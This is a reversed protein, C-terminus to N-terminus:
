LMRLKNRFNDITTFQFANIGVSQAGEVNEIHDDVFLTEEPKLNYTNLLYQFIKPDPKFLDIDSSQVFAELYQELQGRFVHGPNWVNTLAFLRYHPKLKKLIEVMNPNVVINEGHRQAAKKVAELTMSGTDVTKKIWFEDLSMGHTKSGVKGYETFFDNVLELPVGAEEALLKNSWEQGNVHMTLVDSVDFIINKIRLNGM